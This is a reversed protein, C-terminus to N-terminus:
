IDFPKESDFDPHSTGIVLHNPSQYAPMKRLIHQHFQHYNGKFRGENWVQLLKTTFAGNVEGDYSFQNDQCGSLLRVTAKIEHQESSAKQSKLETYFSKNKEWVHETQKPSLFRPTDNTYQISPHLAEKIVSGSNCSDSVVLIRVGKSFRTWFVKLEDDILQADYLCWTEDLWDAEDGNRDPISGGHGSFSIFFIDGAQLTAATQNIMRIVNNRTARENHLSTSDFGNQEAILKMSDADNICGQLAGDTGYHDKDIFNVGIHLSVGKAM